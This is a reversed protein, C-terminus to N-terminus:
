WGAPVAQHMPPITQICDAHGNQAENCVDLAPFDWTYVNAM